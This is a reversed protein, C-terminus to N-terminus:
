RLAEAANTMPVEMVRLIGPRMGRNVPGEPGNVDENVNVQADDHVDRTSRSPSPSPSSV